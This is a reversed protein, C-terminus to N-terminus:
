LHCKCSFPWWTAFSLDDGVLLKLSHIFKKIIFYIHMAGICMYPHTSAFMSAMIIHTSNWGVFKWCMAVLCGNMVHSM